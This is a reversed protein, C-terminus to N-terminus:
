AAVEQACGPCTGAARWWWRGSAGFRQGTIAGIRWGRREAAAAAESWGPSQAVAAYDAGCTCRLLFRGTDTSTTM